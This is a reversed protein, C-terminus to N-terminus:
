LNKIFSVLLTKLPKNKITQNLLISPVSPISPVARRPGVELEQLPSRGDAPAKFFFQKKSIKPWKQHKATIETVKLLLRLLFIM